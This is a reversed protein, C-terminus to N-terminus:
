EDHHPLVLGSALARIRVTRARLTLWFSALLASFGASIVIAVDVATRTWTLRAPSLCGYSLCVNTTEPVRGQLLAIRYAAERASGLEAAELGESLRQAGPQDGRLYQVQAAIYRRWAADSARAQTATGILHEASRLDIGSPPATPGLAPLPGMASTTLLFIVSPKAISTRRSALAWILAIGALMSGLQLALAAIRPIRGIGDDLAGAPMAIPVSPPVHVGVIGTSPAILLARMIVASLFIACSWLLARRLLVTRADICLIEESINM